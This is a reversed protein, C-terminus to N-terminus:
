ALIGFLSSFYFSRIMSSSLSYLTYLFGTLEYFFSNGTKFLFCFYESTLLNPFFEKNFFYLSYSCLFYFSNINLFHNTNKKRTQNQPLQLQKMNTLIILLVFLKSTSSFFLLLIDSDPTSMLCPFSSSSSSLSLTGCEILTLSILPILTEFCCDDFLSGDMPPVRLFIGEPIMAEIFIFALPFFGSIPFDLNPFTIIDLNLSVLSM